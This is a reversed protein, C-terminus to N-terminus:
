MEKLFNKIKNYHKEVENEQEFQLGPDSGSDNYNKWAFIMEQLRRLETEYDSILSKLKYIKDEQTM